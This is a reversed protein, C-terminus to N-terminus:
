INLFYINWEYIILTGAFVARQILCFIIVAFWGRLVVCTKNFLPMCAKQKSKTERGKEFIFVLFHCSCCGPLALLTSICSHNNNNLKPNEQRFVFCTLWHLIRYKLYRLIFLMSRYFVNARRRWWGRRRIYFWMGKVHTYIWYEVRWFLHESVSRKHNRMKRGDCWLFPLLCTKLTKQPKKISGCFRLLAWGPKLFVCFLKARMIQICCLM